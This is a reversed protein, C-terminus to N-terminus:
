EDAFPDVFDFGNSGMISTMDCDSLALSHSRQVKTHPRVSASSSSFSLPLTTTDMYDYVNNDLCLSPITNVFEPEVNAAVLPPTVIKNNSNSRYKTDFEKNSILPAVVFSNNNNNTNTTTTVISYQQQLQQQLPNTNPPQQQVKQKKNDRGHENDDDVDDWRDVDILDVDIVVDDVLIRAKEVNKYLEDIMAVNYEDLRAVNYDNTTTSSSTSTMTSTIAAAVTSTPSSSSPIENTIVVSDGIRESSSGTTEVAAEVTERKRKKMTFAQNEKGTSSSSSAAAPTRMTTTRTETEEARIKSAGERLAQATKAIAKTDEVEIWWHGGNAGLVSSSADKTLFRGKIPTQQQVMRVVEMAIVMKDQKNQALYYEHKRSHVYQRFMINGRHHNVAGGRGCLVDQPNPSRIRHLVVGDSFGGLPGCGLINGTTMIATSGGNYTAVAM